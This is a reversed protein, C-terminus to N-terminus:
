KIDSSWDCGNCSTFDLAGGEGGAGPFAAAFHVLIRRIGRRARALSCIVSLMRVNLLDMRGDLTLFPLRANTEFRQRNPEDGNISERDKKAARIEAAIRSVKGAVAEIDAKRRRFRFPRTTSATPSLLRFKRRRLPAFLNERRVAGSAM